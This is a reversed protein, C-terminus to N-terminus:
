DMLARRLYKMAVAMHKEVGSRSIGLREAVEAHSLGDIKHLRFARRAGEPLNAIASALLAAEERREIAEEANPAPDAPEAGGLGAGGSAESWASDRAAARRRARVRDLVLNQAMRYLYARGNAIPGSDPLKLWLEQIVDEAEAPDGTRAILFRLLETRHHRYIEALGATSGGAEPTVEDSPESSRDDM